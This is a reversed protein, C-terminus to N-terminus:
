KSIIKNPMLKDPFLRTLIDHEQKIFSVQKM